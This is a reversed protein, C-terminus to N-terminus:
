LFQWHFLEQLHTPVFLFFRSNIEDLNGTSDMFALEGSHVVHEHVRRMLPFVICVILTWEQDEKVSNDPEICKVKIQGGDNSFKENLQTCFQFDTAM